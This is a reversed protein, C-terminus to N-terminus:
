KKVVNVGLIILSQRHLMTDIEDRTGRRLFADHLRMPAVRSRLRRQRERDREDRRNAARRQMGRRESPLRVRRVVFLYSLFLYFLFVFLLYLFSKRVTALFEFAPGNQGPLSGRGLRIRERPSDEPRNRYAAGAPAAASRVSVSWRDFM